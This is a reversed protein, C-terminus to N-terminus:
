KNNEGLENVIQIFKDAWQELGFVAGLKKSEEYAEDLRWDPLSAAARLRDALAKVSGVPFEFGNKHTLFEIRNGVVSSLILGCGTSSAEVVVLPWHDTLTPLVFFRSQQLAKAIEEPSSFPHCEIGPCDVLLQRCDGAGYALLKWEPFDKHFERFAAVLDPIGKLRTLGGVFIFQKARETLPPGATFCSHDVGYCGQYIQSRPMGLFHLLKAGSKGPVWVASAWKRYSLRFKVAGLWQRMNNKWCNDCVLIAKGGNRCVEKGLKNFSPLFWGAQFFIDPVPLGIDEWSNVNSPDIWRIKQGILEDALETPLQPNTGIVVVPRGLKRIGSRILRTAYAPIGSWSIVIGIKSESM